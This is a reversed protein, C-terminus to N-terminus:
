QEYYEQNNWMPVFLRHTDAIFALKSEDASMSQEGWYEDFLEPHIGARVLHEAAAAHSDTDERHQNIIEDIEAMQSYGETMKELEEKIIQKLQEKTIKM